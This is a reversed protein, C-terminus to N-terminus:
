RGIVLAPDRGTMGHEEHRNGNQAGHETVLEEGSEAVEVALSPEVESAWGSSQTIRRHEILQDLLKAVLVPVDVGLRREAAGLMHQTVEAAVGVAHGDGVVADGGEIALADAEQPAIIRMAGLLPDHGEVRHVEEAAKEQM